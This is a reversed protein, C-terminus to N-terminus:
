KKRCIIVYLNCFSSPAFYLLFNQFFKGIINLKYGEIRALSENFIKHDMHRFFKFKYFLPMNQVYHFNEIVFEQKFLIQLLEQKKLNLKHFKNHNKSKRSVFFDNLFNQLNDARFSFCIKGNKKLIRKTEELSKILDKIEFNHYLGFALIYDFYENEYDTKLINATIVNLSKDKKKLKIIASQIYDFGHIKYNRNHFYRLIRGNGCGAELIKGNVNTICELAYKLPYRDTAIMESDVDINDWRDQWYNNVDKNRYTVRM